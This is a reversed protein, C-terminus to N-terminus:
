LVIAKRFTHGNSTKQYGNIVASICSPSVGNALRLTVGRMRLTAKVMAQATGTQEAIWRISYNALYKAVVWDAYGMEM